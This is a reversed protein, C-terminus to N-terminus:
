RRADLVQDIVRLDTVHPSDASVVHQEGRGVGTSEQDFLRPQGLPMTSRQSRVAARIVGSSAIAAAGRASAPPM